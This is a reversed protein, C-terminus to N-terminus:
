CMEMRCCSKRCSISVPQVELGLKVFYDVYRAELIDTLEGYADRAERQTILARM